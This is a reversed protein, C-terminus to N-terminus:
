TGASHKLEVFAHLSNRKSKSEEFFHIALDAFKRSRAALDNVAIAETTVESIKNGGFLRTRKLKKRPLLPCRRPESSRSRDARSKADLRVVTTAPLSVNLLKNSSFSLVPWGLVLHAAGFCGTRAKRSQPGPQSALCVYVCVSLRVGPRCLYVLDSCACGHDCDNAGVGLLGRTCRTCYKFRFRLLKFTM